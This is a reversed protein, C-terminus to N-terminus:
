FYPEIRLHDVVNQVGPAHEVTGLVAEKEPWSHVRGRLTVKGNVVEVDIRDAEREARRELTTEISKRIKTSDAKTSAVAINNLVGRVGQLRRVSREADDRDFLSDVNGELTVWGNAVTSRIKTDPVFADWELAHRVALAIDSDTRAMVGPIQVQIDDAVDLVGGVRHAADRAALKKAFSDVTGTLTVIGKKVSVGIETQKVRTDWRLEALVDQQIQSDTRIMTLTEM